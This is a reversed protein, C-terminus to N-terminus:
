DGDAIEAGGPWRAFLNHPIDFQDLIKGVTHDVIEAISQPRHYFGPVPPLVIAGYERAVRWMLRLHGAHLPTERVVLVLRRGEKIVVDAARTLLNQAQCHAIASLTAISCPVVVMGLSVFSGSALPADVKDERYSLHALAEVEEVTFDTELRIVKRAAQTTVLYSEVDLSRLVELLRVGYIAGSAGSMGVILRKKEM